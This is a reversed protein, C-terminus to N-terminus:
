DRHSPAPSCPGSRRHDLGDHDGWRPGICPTGHPSASAAITSIAASGGVGAGLLWGPVTFNDFPTRALIERPFREDDRGTALLVGGAIATATVFMDIGVLTRRRKSWRPVTLTVSARDTTESPRNPTRCAAQSRPHIPASDTSRGLPTRGPRDPAPIGRTRQHLSM